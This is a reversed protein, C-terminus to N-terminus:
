LQTNRFIIIITITELNPIDVSIASMYFLSYSNYLHVCPLSYPFAYYTETM